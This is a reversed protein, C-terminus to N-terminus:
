SICWINTQKFWVFSLFVVELIRIRRLAWDLNNHTSILANELWKIADENAAFLSTNNPDYTSSLDINPHHQQYPFPSTPPAVSMNNIM